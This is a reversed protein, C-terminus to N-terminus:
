HRIIIVFSYPLLSVHNINSVHILESINRHQPNIHAYLNSAILYLEIKLCYTQVYYLMVTNNHFKLAQTLPNFNHYQTRVDDRVSRRVGLSIPLLFQDANVRSVSWNKVLHLISVIYANLNQSWWAHAWLLLQCKIVLFSLLRIM